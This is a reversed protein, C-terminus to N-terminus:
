TATFLSTFYAVCADLRRKSDGVGPESYSYHSLRIRLFVVLLAVEIALAIPFQLPL